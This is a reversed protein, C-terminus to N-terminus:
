DLVISERELYGKLYAEKKESSDDTWSPWGGSEQKIKLWTNVYSSFPGTVRQDLPFHYVEHIRKVVYGMEVAKQIEMACWTGRLTRESDSHSCCYNRELLPKKTENELCTRCLPFTLKGNYRYPLVPNFLSFPPLVDVCAIGFYHTIDQVDPEFFITPHGVPYTGYKNVWPYESTVDVFRIEEGQKENVKKYISAAGTRGGFFADRAVLPPIIEIKSLFSRIEESENVLRKWECEWIVIVRYGKTRLDQTKRM